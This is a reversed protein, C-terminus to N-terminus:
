NETKSEGTPMKSKLSFKGKPSQFVKIPIQAEIQPITYATSFSWGNSGTIGSKGTSLSFGPQPSYESQVGQHTQYNQFNLFDHRSLESM